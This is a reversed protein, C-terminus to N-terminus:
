KTLKVKKRILNKYNETLDSSRSNHVPFNIMPEYHTSYPTPSLAGADHEKKKLRMEIDDEIKSKYQNQM